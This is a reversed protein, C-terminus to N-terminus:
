DAAALREAHQKGGPPEAKQTAKGLFFSVLASFLLPIAAVYFLQYVPLRMGIVVGGVVPGAISGIKAVALAWGEGDARYSTPYFMPGLATCAFQTGVVCFGQWFVLAEFAWTPMPYGIVFSVAAGLLPLLAVSIIGVRDMIMGALLGGLTGGVSNLATTLAAQTPTSGAAQILTPM